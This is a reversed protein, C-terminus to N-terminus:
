CAIISLIILCVLWSYDPPGVYLRGKCYIRSRALWPMQWGFNFDKDRHYAELGLQKSPAYIQSFTSTLM